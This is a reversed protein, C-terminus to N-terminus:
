PAGVVREALALVRSSIKISHREAADLSVEFRVRKNVSIFNICAGARLGDSADTILLLRREQAAQVLQSRRPHVKEGVFLLQVGALSDGEVLRRTQLPRAGLSREHVVQTLEAFVDDAGAVGIVLPSDPQAFAAAPLEVYNLFKYLYAAKVAAPQALNQASALGAAAFVLGLALCARRARFAAQAPRRAAPEGGAAHTPATM